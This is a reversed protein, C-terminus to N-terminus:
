LEAKRALTTYHLPMLFRNEDELPEIDIQEFDRLLARIGHDTFRWCDPLPGHIRFNFPTSMLLVGGQKLLRHIEKVALFPNLTHELVETCIVIDFAGESIKDGNNKYIDIIYDAGSQKDIDATYVQSKLFFERAGEHVQPAIDLLKISTADYKVAAEKIFRRVNDRIKKYVADDFDSIKNKM